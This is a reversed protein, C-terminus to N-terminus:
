DRLKLYGLENMITSNQTLRSTSEDKNGYRLSDISLNNSDIFRVEYLATVTHGAGIDGADVKDNNFDERALARNEYGILRYESVVQPNFELQIKVDGAVTLLSSNM